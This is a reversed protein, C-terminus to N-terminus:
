NDKTRNNLQRTEFILEEGLRRANTAVKPRNTHQSTRKRDEQNNKSVLAAM